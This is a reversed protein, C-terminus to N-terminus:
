RSEAPVDGAERQLQGLCNAIPEFQQTFDNGYQDLKGTTNQQDWRFGGPGTNGLIQQYLQQYTPDQSFDPM